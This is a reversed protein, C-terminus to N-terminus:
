LYDLVPRLFNPIIKVNRLLLKKKVKSESRHALRAIIQKYPKLTKVYKKRNPFVGKFINLAIESLLSIEEKTLNSLVVKRQKVSSDYLFKIFSAHTKMRRSMKKKCIVFIQEKEEKIM